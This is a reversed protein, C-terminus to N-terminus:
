VDTKDNQKLNNNLIKKTEAILYYGGVLLSLASLIIALFSNPKSILETFFSGFLFLYIVWLILFVFNKVM